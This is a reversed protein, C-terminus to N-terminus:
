ILRIINTDNGKEFCLQKFKYEGEMEDVVKSIDQHTAIITIRSKDQNVYKIVYKLVKEADAFDSDVKNDLGSTCEDLVVVDIDEDLWYLMKAIIMRQNQGNSLVGNAKKQKMWLWVDHCQLSIEQWLHLNMLIDKMKDLDPNEESCFLEEYLNKSGFRLKEDFFMYRSTGVIQTSDHSTKIRETVLKMFTSKGSGSPGSLIVVEGKRLTFGEELMLKFPKDNESEEIYAITFRPVNIEEVTVENLSAELSVEQNYVRLIETMDAEENQLMVIKEIYGNFTRAIDKVNKLATQVIVLVATIEAISDVSIQSNDMSSFYAIIIGFQCFAEFVTLMLKSVIEKKKFKLINNRNLTVVTNLSTIRTSLDQKVIEPVRLVDNVLTHTRNKYEKDKEVYEMRKKRVYLTTIFSLISFIVILSVFLTQNVETNTIIAVIIMTVVTFMKLVLIKQKCEYKWLNHLFRKITNLLSENLILEYLGTAEDKRYVKGTTKSVIQSGRVIVENEYVTQVNQEELISWSDIMHSMLNQARYLMFCIIGLVIYHRAILNNTIKLLFAFTLVVLNMGWSVMGLKVEISKITEPPELLPEDIKPKVFFGKILKCMKKLRDVFNKLKM